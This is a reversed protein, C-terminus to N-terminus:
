FSADADGGAEPINAPLGSGQQVDAAIMKQRDLDALPLRSVSDTHLEALSSVDPSIDQPSLTSGASIRFPPTTHMTPASPANFIGVAIAAAAIGVAWRRHALQEPSRLVAWLSRKARARERDDVRLQRYASAWFDAPPLPPGPLGRVLKKTRRLDAELGRCAACAHLHEGIGRMKPIDLMSDIYASLQEGHPHYEKRIM